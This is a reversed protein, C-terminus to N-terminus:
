SGSIALSLFSVQNRKGIVKYVDSLQTEMVPFFILGSFSMKELLLHLCFTGQPLIPVREFIPDYLNQVKVFFGLYDSFSFGGTKKRIVKYVDSLQTEM